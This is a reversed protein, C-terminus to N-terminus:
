RAAAVAPLRIGAVRAVEAWKRVDTRIMARMEEPKLTM